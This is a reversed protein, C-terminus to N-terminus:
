RRSSLIIANINSSSSSVSICEQFSSVPLTTTTKNNKHSPHPKSCVCFSFSTSPHIRRNNQHNQDNAVLLVEQRLCATRFFLGASNSIWRERQRLCALHRRDTSERKGMMVFLLNRPMITGYCSASREFSFVAILLFCFPRVAQWPSLVTDSVIVDYLQDM